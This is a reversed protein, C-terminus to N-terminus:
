DGPIAATGGRDTAITMTPASRTHAAAAQIRVKMCDGDIAM